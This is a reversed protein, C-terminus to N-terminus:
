ERLLLMGNTCWSHKNTHPKCHCSVLALTHQAICGLKVLAYAQQPIPSHVSYASPAARQEAKVALASRSGALWQSSCCALLSQMISQSTVSCQARGPPPQLTCCTCTTFASQAWSLLRVAHAHLLHLRVRICKCKAADDAVHIMITNFGCHFPPITPM